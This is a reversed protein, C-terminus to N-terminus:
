AWGLAASDSGAETGLGLVAVAAAMGMGIGKARDMSGTVGTMQGLSSSAQARHRGNGSGGALAGWSAGLGRGQHHWAWGASMKQQAGAVMAQGHEMDVAVVQAGLGSAQAGHGARALWGLVTAWARRGVSMGQQAGAAVAMALAGSRNGVRTMATVHSGNTRCTVIM